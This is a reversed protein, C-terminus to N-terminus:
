RFFTLTGRVTPYSRSEVNYPFAGWVKGDVDFKIKNKGNSSFACVNSSPKINPISVDAQLFDTYGTSNKNYAKGSKIPAYVYLRGVHADENYQVWSGHYEGDIQWNGIQESSTWSKRCVASKDAKNNSLNTINTKNTSIDTELNKITSSSNATLTNYRNLLNNFNLVLANLTEQIGGQGFITEYITQQTTITVNHIEDYKNKHWQYFYNSLESITNTIGM